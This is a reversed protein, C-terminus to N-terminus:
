VLIALISRILQVFHCGSSFISFGIFAMDECALPGIEFYGKVLVTFVIKNRQVFHGDSRLIYFNKLPM